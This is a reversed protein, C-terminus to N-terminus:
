LTFTSNDRDAIFEFDGDKAKPLIKFKLHKLTPKGNLFGTFLVLIVFM